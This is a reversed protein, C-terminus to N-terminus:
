GRLIADIEAIQEATHRGLILDLEHREAPTQYAAIERALRRRARTTEVAARMRRSLTKM